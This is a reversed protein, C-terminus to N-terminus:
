INTYELNTFDRRLKTQRRRECNLDMTEIWPTNDLYVSLDKPKLASEQHTM